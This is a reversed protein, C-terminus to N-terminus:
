MLGRVFDVVVARSSKFPSTQQYKSPTFSLTEVEFRVVDPVANGNFVFLTVKVISPQTLLLPPHNFLPLQHFM